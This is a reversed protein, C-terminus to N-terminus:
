ELHRLRFARERILLIERRPGFAQPQRATLAYIGDHMLMLEVREAQRRSLWGPFNVQNVAIVAHAAGTLGGRQSAIRRDTDRGPVRKTQREADGEHALRETFRLQDAKGM